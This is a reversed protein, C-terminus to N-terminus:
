YNPMKGADMDQGIGIIAQNMENPHEQMLANYKDLTPVAMNWRQDRDTFQGPPTQFYYPSKTGGPSVCERSFSVQEPQSQGTWRVKREQNVNQAEQFNQVDKKLDPNNMVENHVVVNQEYDAHKMMGDYRNGAAYAQFGAVMKRNLDLAEGHVTVCQPSEEYLRYQPYIDKFIAQNGRVLIKKSSLALAKVDHGFVGGAKRTFRGRYGPDRSADAWRMNCGMQKSVFIAAGAWYLDLRRQYMKSYAATVRRNVQSGNKIPDGQDDALAAAEKRFKELLAKCENVPDPPIPHVCCTTQGVTKSSGVAHARAVAAKQFPSSDDSM